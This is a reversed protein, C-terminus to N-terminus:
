GSRSSHAHIMGLMGSKTCSAWADDPLKTMKEEDVTLFGEVTHKRGDPLTADFRMDRLLGLELLRQGGARASCRAELEELSAGARADPRPEGEADFLASARRREVRADAMGEVCMAFSQADIRAICFPYARLMAPM